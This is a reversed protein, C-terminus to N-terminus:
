AGQAGTGAGYGALSWEAVRQVSAPRILSCVSLLPMSWTLTPSGTVADSPSGSPTIM